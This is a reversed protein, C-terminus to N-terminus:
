KKPNIKYHKPTTFRINNKPIKLHFSTLFQPKKKFFVLGLKEFL